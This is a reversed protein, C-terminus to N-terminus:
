LVNRAPRRSVITITAPPVADPHARRVRAAPDQGYFDGLVAYLDPIQAALEVSRTFFSETAVAFFEAPNTGAYSRLVRPATGDRVAEFYRTCVEVWRATTAEDGLIPTGNMLGDVSDIKHAFEHLVVDRGTHLQNAERRAARWSVMLPGNDHHSEGDVAMPTDDVTGPVSGANGTRQSMSGARIVITGVADFWRPELELILLSAHAAVVTRAEDTLDFGRSGEWRKTHLLWEALDGLRAREGDDLLRWQASRASLIDEWGDPLGSRRRSRFM